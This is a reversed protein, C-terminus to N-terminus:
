NPMDLWAGSWDPWAGSIFAIAFAVGVFGAIFTIFAVNRQIHRLVELQDQLLKNTTDAEETKDAIDSLTELENKLMRDIDDAM